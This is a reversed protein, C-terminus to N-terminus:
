KSKKKTKSIPKTSKSKVPKENTNSTNLKTIENLQTLFEKASKCEANEINFYYTRKTDKNLFLDAIAKKNLTLKRKQYILKPLFKESPKEICEPNNSLTYNKDKLVDRLTNIDSLFWAEIEQVALILIHTDKKPKIINEIDERKKGDSDTLIIIRDPNVNDFSKTHEKLYNHNLNGNGEANIINGVKELKIRKLYNQFNITEVFMKEVDGECIFGIKVM